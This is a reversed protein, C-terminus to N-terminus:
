KGKGMALEFSDVYYTDFFENPAGELSGDEKISIEYVQPSIKTKSPNGLFIISVDEKKLKGSMALVRLRNILYESHTEVIYNRKNLRSVFYNALKAQSTPHLHVEPQNILLLGKDPLAVDAVIFPLAQSIGFGADSLNVTEKHKYPQVQIKLIEDLTSEPRVKSVLELSGLLENVKKYREKNHKIWEQLIVVCNKGAPDISPYPLDPPYFRLPTARVPGIYVVKESLNEIKSIISTLVNHAMPNRGILRFLEFPSINGTTEAKPQKKFLDSLHKFDFSSKAKGKQQKISLSSDKLLELIKPITKDKKFKHAIEELNYFIKYGEKQGKWHIDIKNKESVLTIRQPLIHDGQASYRYTVDVSSEEESKDFTLGISFNSSVKNEHVIDNYTGMSCNAGNTAIEFPFIKPRKTQLILALANLISSKGSSNIGTLITLRKFNIDLSKFVKFNNLRLQNIIM